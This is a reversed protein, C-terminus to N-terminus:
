IVRKSQSLQEDLSCEEISSGSPPSVSLKNLVSELSAPYLLRALLYGLLREREPGPHLAGSYSCLFRPSITLLLPHPPVSIGILINL